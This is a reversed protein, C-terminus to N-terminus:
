EQLVEINGDKINIIVSGERTLYTKVHFRKLLSLIDGDEPEKESSTILAIEPAAANLLAESAPNKRGHHPVKYIDCKVNENKLLEFSREEEIDGTFLLVKEGATVRVVLSSNNSESSEYEEKLPPLIEYLVGDLTFSTKERVTKEELARDELAEYFADIRKSSKSPFTTYVNDVDCANLIAEAGGVHDKDFHSLILADAHGGSLALIEAAFTEGFNKKGCDIIVTSDPTYLLFADAKGAEWAIVTLEPSSAAASLEPSSLATRRNGSSNVPACGSLLFLLGLLLSLSKIYRRATKRINKRM